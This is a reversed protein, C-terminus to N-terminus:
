HRTGFVLNSLDMLHVAPQDLLVQRKGLNGLPQIQCAHHRVQISGPRGRGHPRHQGVLLVDAVVNEVTAREFQFLGMDVIRGVHPDALFAGEIADHRDFHEHGRLFDDCRAALPQRIFLQQLMQAPEIGFGTFQGSKQDVLGAVHRRCGGISSAKTRQAAGIFQNAVAGIQVALLCFQVPAQARHM